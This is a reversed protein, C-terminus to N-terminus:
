PMHGTNYKEQVSQELIQLRSQTILIPERQPTPLPQPFNTLPSNNLGTKAIQNKKKFSLSVQYFIVENVFATAETKFCM